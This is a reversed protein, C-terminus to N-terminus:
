QVAVGNLCQIVRSTNWATYTLLCRVSSCSGSSGSISASVWPSESTIKGSPVRLALGSGSGKLLPRYWRAICNGCIWSIGAHISLTCRTIGL